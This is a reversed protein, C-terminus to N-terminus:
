NLLDDIRRYLSNPQFGRAGREEPCNVIPRTKVLLVLESLASEFITLQDERSETAMSMFPRMSWEDLPTPGPGRCCALWEQIAELHVYFVGTARQDGAQPTYNQRQWHYAPMVSPRPNEDVLQLGLLLGDREDFPVIEIAMPRLDQKVDGSANSSNGPQGQSSRPFSCRVFELYRRDLTTGSATIPKVMLVDLKHEQLWGLFQQRIAYLPMWTAESKFDGSVVPIELWTLLGEPFRGTIEEKSALSVADEYGPCSIVLMPVSSGHALSDDWVDILADRIGRAVVSAGEPTTPDPPSESPPLSNPVLVLIGFGSEKEVAQRALNECQELPRSANQSLNHESGLTSSLIELSREWLRIAYHYHAMHALTRAVNALSVALTATFPVWSKAGSLM